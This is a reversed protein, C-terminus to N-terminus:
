GASRISLSNGRMHFAVRKAVKIAVMTSESYCGVVHSKFITFIM